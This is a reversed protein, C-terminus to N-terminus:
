IFYEPYDQKTVVKLDRVKYYTTYGLKSREVFLVLALGTPREFVSLVRGLMQKRYINHEFALVYDGEKVNNM